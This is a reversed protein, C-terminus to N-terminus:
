ESPANPDSSYCKLIKSHKSYRVWCFDNPNGNGKLVVWLNLGSIQHVWRDKPDEALQINDNQQNRANNLRTSVRRTSGESNLAAEQDAIIAQNLRTWESRVVAEVDGDDDVSDDEELENEPQITDPVSSAISQVYRVHWCAGVHSQPELFFSKYVACRCRWHEMGHASYTVVVWCSYIQVSDAFFCCVLFYRANALKQTM